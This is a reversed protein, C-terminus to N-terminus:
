GVSNLRYPSKEALQRRDDTLDYRRGPRVKYAPDYEGWWGRVWGKAELDWLLSYIQNESLVLNGRSARAIRDIIEPAYAQGATLATLVADKVDYM